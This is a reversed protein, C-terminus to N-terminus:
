KVTDIVDIDAGQLNSMIQKNFKEAPMKDILSEAKDRAEDSSNATVIVEVGTDFHQWVRWKAM